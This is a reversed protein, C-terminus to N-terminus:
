CLSQQLAPNPPDHETAGNLWRFEELYLQLAFRM